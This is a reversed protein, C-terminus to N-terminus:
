GASPKPVSPTFDAYKAWRILNMGSGDGPVGGALSSFSVTIADLHQRQLGLFDNLANILSFNEELEGELADILSALDQRRRYLGNDGSTAPSVSQAGLRPHAKWDSYPHPLTEGTKLAKERQAVAQDIGARATLAGLYATEDAPLAPANYSDRQAASLGQFLALWQIKWANWAAIAANGRELLESELKADPRPLNMLDPRYDPDDVALLLRLRDGRGGALDVVGRPLEREVVASVTDAPVPILDVQLDGPAFALNPNEGGVDRLLEAPLPGAAPLYDLGIQEALSLTDDLKGGKMALDHSFRAMVQGAHALFALYPGQATAAFRGAVAEFWVPKRKQVKVLALPVGGNVADFPSEELFRAGLRNAARDRPLALLGAHGTVFRLNLLCVTDLRRDRTPDPEARRCAAQEADADALEVERELHLFYIGNALPGDADKEAYELLQEWTEDLPFHLRLPRGDGGVANGPRVHIRLAPDDADLSAELGAVIGPFVHTLLPALRDDAYAQLLDFDREGLHRGPFLNLRQPEGGGLEVSDLHITRKM